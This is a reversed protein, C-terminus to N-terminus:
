KVVEENVEIFGEAKLSWLMERMAINIDDIHCLDESGLFIFEPHKESFAAAISCNVDYLSEKLRKYEGEFGKRVFIDFSNFGGLGDRHWLIVGKANKLAKEIM